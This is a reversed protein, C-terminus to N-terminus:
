SRLYSEVLRYKQMNSIKNQDTLTFASGNFLILLSVSIIIPIRDSTTVTLDM